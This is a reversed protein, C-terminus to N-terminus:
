LIVRVVTENNGFYDRIEDIHANNVIIVVGLEENPVFCTSESFSRVFAIDDWPFRMVLSGERSLAVGREDLNVVSPKDNKLYDGVAKNMKNLYALLMAACVWLIATCIFIPKSWGFLFGCLMNLVFVVAAAIGIKRFLTFNDTLVADPDKLLKKYQMLVNVAERYLEETGKENIEIRM